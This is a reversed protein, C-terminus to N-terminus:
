HGGDLKERLREALATDGHAAQVKEWLARRKDADEIKEAKKEAARYAKEAKVDRQFAKERKWAKAAAGLRESGPVGKLLGELARLQGLAASPYGARRLTRARALAREPAGELLAIVAAAREAQAGGADRARVAEAHAKGYAGRDLLAAIKSLSGGLGVQEPVIPLTRETWTELFRAPDYWDSLGAKVSKYGYNHTMRFAGPYMGFHLHAFHGGNEISYGMGMHGLLQGCTVHEGAEVFVTDGGHMYVANLLRKEGEHHEVVILTGMDSGSHILKVIGEALAYYGAGDMSAGVDHGVHYVTGNSRLNAFPQLSTGKVVEEGYGLTPHVWRSAAPLKAASGGGQRAKVVAKSNPAVDRATNM